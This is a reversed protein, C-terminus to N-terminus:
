SQLHLDPLCSLSRMWAVGCHSETHQRAYWCGQNLGLFHLSASVQSPQLISLSRQLRRPWFAAIVFVQLSASSGDLM